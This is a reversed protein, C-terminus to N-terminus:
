PHDAARESTMIIIMKAFSAAIPAALIIEYIPRLPQNGPVAEAPL